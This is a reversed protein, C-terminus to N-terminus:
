AFLDRLWDLPRRDFFARGTRGILCSDTSDAALDPVILTVDYRELHRPSPAVALHRYVAAAGSGALRGVTAEHVQSQGGLRFKAAQGISLQNYVRETVSLTVFASTCDAVRIIPDGRQVTVGDQELVEWFIGDVPAAIDGGAQSNVRVRERGAREELAALRERSTVLRADLQDIQGQLEVMRQEANPADNYGDGLFVNQRAADRAISLVAVRERAHSLALDRTAPEAPLRGTDAGTGDIEEGSVPVSPPGAELLALREEARALREELEALRERRYIDVRDRLGDQLTRANSLLTEVEDMEAQALRQEMQLDHLRVSDVLPDSISALTEGRTVRAGLPREPVTLGGAVPARLTVVRANVVADASAGSMQEGVIIWLALVVVLLGAILRSYKM